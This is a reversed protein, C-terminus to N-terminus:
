KLTEHAQEENLAEIDVELDTDVICIGDGDPLVKDILFRFTENRGVPVSLLEGTTLTTFNERLYRELLAKWDDFDYGAELPRLRVHTGKPLQKAHVTVTPYGPKMSQKRSQYSGLGVDSIESPDEGIGVSSTQFDYDAFGL